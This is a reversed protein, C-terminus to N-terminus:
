FWNSTNLLLTTCAITLPLRILSIEYGLLAHSDFIPERCLASRSDM